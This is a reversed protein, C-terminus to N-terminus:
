KYKLSFLVSSLAYETRLVTDGLRYITAVEKLYQIEGDTFGSESGLFLFLRGFGGEDPSQCSQNTNGVWGSSQCAQIWNGEGGPHFVAIRDTPVLALESFIRPIKSALYNISPIHVSGSQEIGTLIEQRALGINKYLPSTLYEKNKSDPLYFHISHVGFCGALHFVKKGTQPRPLPLVLHIPPHSLPSTDECGGSNEPFFQVLRLHSNWEIIELHGRCLDSVLARLRTGPTTKKLIKEIHQIKASSSVPHLKYFGPRDTKEAQELVIWNM